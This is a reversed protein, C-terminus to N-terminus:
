PRARKVRFRISQRESLQAPPVEGAVVCPGILIPAKGFLGPEFLWPLIAPLQTCETRATDRPLKEGDQEHSEHHGRFWSLFFCHEINM